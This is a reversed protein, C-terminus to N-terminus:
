SLTILVGIQAFAIHSSPGAENLHRFTSECWPPKTWMLCVLTQKRLHCKANLRAHFGIQVRKCSTFCLCFTFCLCSTLWLSSTSLVHREAVAALGLFCILLPLLRSEGLLMNVAVELPCVELKPEPWDTLEAIKMRLATQFYVLGSLPAMIKMM